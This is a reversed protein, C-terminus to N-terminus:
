YGLAKVSVLTKCICVDTFVCLGASIHLTNNHRLEYNSRIVTQNLSCMNVSSPLTERLGSTLSVLDEDPVCVKLYGYLGRYYLQAINKKEYLLVNAECKQDTYYLAIFETYIFAFHHVHSFVTRVKCVSHHVRLYSNSSLFYM